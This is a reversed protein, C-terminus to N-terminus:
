GGKKRSDQRATPKKAVPKTVYTVMVVTKGYLTIFNTSSSLIEVNNKICLNNAADSCENLAIQISEIDPSPVNAMTTIEKNM